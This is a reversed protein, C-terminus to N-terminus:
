LLVPASEFSDDQGEEELAEPDHGSKFRTHDKMHLFPFYRGQPGYRNKGIKLWVKVPGNAYRDGDGELAATKDKKDEYLLLVGAADEELAGSGRLDSVELESRKDRAKARSTQSALLVPINMEMATQKLSRSIETFKEYDSRVTGTSAMLQMHDVFVMRINNGRKQLRATEKAIYDTTVSPKTSVLFPLDVFKGTSRCLKVLIEQIEKSAKESADITSNKNLLTFQHSRLANLEVRADICAMRQFVDRWKMEMSFLLSGEGRGILAMIIQILMSTKGSGQDGGLVYVEGNRFGGGLCRNLLYWPTALGVLKSLDWFATLGGAAEVEQKFTRVFRDNEDPIVSGFEWDPSWPQAKKYLERLNEVTGGSLIFDTVDGKPPLNPIEVIKVLKAVPSVLTAVKVAHARGPEDNDFFIAVSKGALHRASESLFQGAGGSNCTGVLGIRELTLVDREGEVINVHEAAVVQPLHFLTREVDGLGWKWGGQGDPRRQKFEKGVMRLVQYLVEGKADTYDYYDQVDREQWPVVPRGIIEFVRAKARPFDVGTLAQELSLIDFGKACSSFCHALGTQTNIEFSERTGKHVPCQTRIEKHSGWKIKPIRTIYYTRVESATFTM